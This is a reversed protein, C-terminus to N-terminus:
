RAISNRSAYTAEAQADAANKAAKAQKKSSDYGLVGGVVSGM